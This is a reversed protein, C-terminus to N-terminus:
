RTPSLWISGAAPACFATAHVIGKMHTDDYDLGHMLAANLLVANRVTHTDSYGIVPSVGNESLAKIGRLMVDAFENRQSAFAIGIADLILHKARTRVHRPVEEPDLSHAFAAYTQSLTRCGASAKEM